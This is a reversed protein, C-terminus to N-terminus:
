SLDAPVGDPFPRCADPPDGIVSRTLNWGSPTPKSYGSGSAPASPTSSWRRDFPEDNFDGTALGPTDEGAICQRRGCVDATPPHASTPPLSDYRRTM